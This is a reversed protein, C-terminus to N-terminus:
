ERPLPAIEDHSFLPARPQLIKQLKTVIKVFAFLDNIFAALKHLELVHTNLFLM